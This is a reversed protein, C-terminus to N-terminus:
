FGGQIDVTGSWSLSNATVSYSYSTGQQVQTCSLFLVQTDGAQGSPALEGQFIPKANYNFAIHQKTNADFTLAWRVKTKGVNMLLLSTDPLCSNGLATFQGIVPDPSLEVEAASHYVYLVVPLTLHENANITLLISGTHLVDNSKLDALEVDIGVRDSEGTHIEGGATTPSVALWNAQDDTVAKATWHLPTAATGSNTMTVFQEHPNGQGVAAQFTLHSTSLKLSISSTNDLKAATVQVSLYAEQGSNNDRAVIFHRGITWRTTVPITADFAGQISATLTLQRGNSGNIPIKGDLMFIIAAGVNFHRGQVSLSQGQEASLIRQGAVTIEPASGAHYVYTQTTSSVNSFYNQALYVGFAALICVVLIAKLWFLLPFKM